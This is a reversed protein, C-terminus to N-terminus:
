SLISLYLPPPIPAPFDYYGKICTEEGKHNTFSLGVVPTSMKQLIKDVQAM